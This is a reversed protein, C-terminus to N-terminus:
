GDDVSAGGVQHTDAMCGSRGDDDDEGDCGAAADALADPAAEETQVSEVMSTAWPCSTATRM